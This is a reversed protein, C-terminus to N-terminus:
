MSKESFTERPQEVAPSSMSQTQRIDFVTDHKTVAHRGEDLLKGDYWALGTNHFEEDTLNAPM